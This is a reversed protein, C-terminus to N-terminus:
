VRSLSLKRIGPFSLVMELTFPGARGNLADHEDSPVAVAANASFDLYDDHAVAGNVISAAYGGALDAWSYLTGTGHTGWGANEIGDYMTVLGQSVYSRATLAKKGGLFIQGAAIM